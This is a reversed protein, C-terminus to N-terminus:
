RPHLAFPTHYDVDHVHLQWVAAGSPMVSATLYLSTSGAIVDAGQERMDRVADPSDRFPIPLAPQHALEQAWLEDLVAPVLAGTRILHHITADPEPFPTLCERLCNVELAVDLDDDCVAVESCARARQQPLLYWFEWVHAHGHWNIDQGSIRVLRAAPDYHAARHPIPGFAQQATLAGVLQPLPQIHQVRATIM